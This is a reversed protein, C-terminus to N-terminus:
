LSFIKEQLTLKYPKKNPTDLNRNMKGVLLSYDRNYVVISILLFSPSLLHWIPM